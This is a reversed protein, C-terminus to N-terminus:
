MVNDLLALVYTDVATGSIYPRCFTEALSTPLLPISPLVFCSTILLCVAELFDENNRCNRCNRKLRCYLSYCDITYGNREREGRCAPSFCSKLNDSASPFSEKVLTLGLRTNRRYASFLGFRLFLASVTWIRQNIKRIWM